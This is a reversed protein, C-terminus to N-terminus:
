INSAKLEIASNSSLFENVYINLSLSTSSESTYRVNDMSSLTEDLDKLLESLCKSIEGNKSRLIELLKLKDQQVSIKLAEIESTINQLKALLQEKDM